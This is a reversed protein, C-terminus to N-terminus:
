LANHTKHLQLKRLLSERQSLQRTLAQSPLGTVVSGGRLSLHNKTLAARDSLGQRKTLTRARETM